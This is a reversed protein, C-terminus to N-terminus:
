APVSRGRRAEIEDARRLEDETPGTVTALKDLSKLNEFSGAGDLYSRRGPWPGADFYQKGWRDVQQARSLTVWDRAQSWRPHAPGIELEQGRYWVQGFATLGDEIFHILVSEGEAPQYAVPQGEFAAAAAIAESHQRDRQAREKATLESAPKPRKPQARTPAPAAMSLGCDGCFRSGAPNDHGLACRLTATCQDSDKTEAAAAADGSKAPM